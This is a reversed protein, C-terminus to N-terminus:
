SLIQSKFEWFSEKMVVIFLSLFFGIMFFILVIMKRNPSSRVKPITVPDIITFIPTQRIIDIKAKEVEQALQNCVANSINVASQLRMVKNSILSSNINQNQDMFLALEDQLQELEMRRDKYLSQSEKLTEKGNEIRFKIIDEQLLNLATQTIFAAVEAEELEVILEMMAGENDIQISLVKDLINFIVRDSPSIQMIKEAFPVSLEEKDAPPSSLDNITPYPPPAEVSLNMKKLFFTHLSTLNGKYLLTNELLKKKFPVSKLITPYLSSPIETSNNSADLNIGALSAINNNIRSSNIGTKLIFKTSSQYKEPILFASLVGILTFFSITLVIKKSNLIIKKTLLVLDIKYANQNFSDDDM